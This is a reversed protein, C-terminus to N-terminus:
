ILKVQGDSFGAMMRITDPSLLNVIMQDARSELRPSEEWNPLLKSAKRTKKKGKSGLGKIIPCQSDSIKM